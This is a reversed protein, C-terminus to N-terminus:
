VSSAPTIKRASKRSRAKQGSCPVNFFMLGGGDVVEHEAIAAYYGGPLCRAQIAPNKSQMKLAFIIPM